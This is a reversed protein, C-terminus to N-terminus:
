AEPPDAPLAGTDAVDAAVLYLKRNQDQSVTRLMEFARDRTVKQSAMLIGMAVGIDRSNQLARELDVVKDRLVRAQHDLETREEIERTLPRFLAVERGM